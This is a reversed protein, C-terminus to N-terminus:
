AAESPAPPAENGWCDWGPRRSRAFLEIKRLEPYMREVIRYAIEPKESHAGRPARFVSPLRAHPPPPPMDGRTVVLLNEHKYRFYFGKGPGDEKEWISQACYNFGWARIVSFGEELITPPVWLFLVAIPAALDSVPLACIEELALTPYNAEIARTSTKSFEYRWAPDALVLPYKHGGPLPTNCASLEIARGIREARRQETLAARIEQAKRLIEREGRAVIEQQEELPRTAIDAAASVSLVGTEVANVLEPAGGERVERARAVTRAGVNLLESSRGIPLGESHQNDGLKLSALKAAVMARQSENLHRRKLNLSVVFGLPDDGEYVRMPCDVGVIQAARERNRGDLTKGQYIWIPERVGHQRIDDVLDAFEAGGMLPFINAVPHSPIAPPALLGMDAMADGGSASPNSWKRPSRLRFSKLSGYGLGGILGKAFEMKRVTRETVNGYDALLEIPWAEDGDALPIIKRPKIKRPRRRTTQDPSTEVPHDVTTVSEISMPQGKSHFCGSM